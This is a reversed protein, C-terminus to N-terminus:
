IYVLYGVHIHAFDEIVVNVDSFNNMYTNLFAAIIIGVAILRLLFLAYDKIGLGNSVVEEEELCEAAAKVVQEKATAQDQVPAPSVQPKVKKKGEPSGEKPPNSEDVKNKKAKKTTAQEILPQQLEENATKEKGM